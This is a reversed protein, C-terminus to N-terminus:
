LVRRKMLTNMAPRWRNRDAALHIWGVSDWCTEKLNIKINDKWTHRHRGLLRRESKWVL